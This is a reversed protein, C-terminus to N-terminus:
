GTKLPFSRFLFLGSCVATVEEEKVGLAVTETVNEEKVSPQAATDESSQKVRTIVRIIYTVESLWGNRSPNM